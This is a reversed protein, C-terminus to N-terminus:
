EVAARLEQDDPHTYIQTSTISAHGLLMQTVRLNSKALVRTAFTHRLTHPTVHDLSATHAADGIIRQVQRTTLPRDPHNEYFAYADPPANDHYWRTEAMRAIAQLLRSSTPIRRAQHTKAIDARVTLSSVPADNFILDSVALQVLEGVRLGTELLTVGIAWNRTAQRGQRLGVPPRLLAELLADQQAHSLTRPSIL